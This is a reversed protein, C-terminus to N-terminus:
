YVISQPATLFFGIVGHTPYAQFYSAIGSYFSRPGYMVAYPADGWPTYPAVTIGYHDTSALADMYVLSCKVRLAFMDGTPEAALLDGIWLGTMAWAYNTTPAGCLGTWKPSGSYVQEETWSSFWDYVLVNELKECYLRLGETNYSDPSTVWTVVTKPPCEVFKFGGHASIPDTLTQARALTPLTLLSLALTCASVIAKM